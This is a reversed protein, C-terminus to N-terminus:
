SKTAAFNDYIKLVMDINTLAEDIFKKTASDKTNAKLRTLMTKLTTLEYTMKNTYTRDLAGRQYDSELGTSLEAMYATESRKLKKKQDDGSKIKKEALIANFDTNMTGLTSNLTSNTNNLMNDSLRNNQAKTVEQLTAIRAQLPLALSAFSPPQLSSIVMFALAVLTLAGGILGFIAVRNAAKQQPPAIQDLYDAAYVEDKPADYQLSGLPQPQPQLHPQPQPQQLNPQPQTSAAQPVPQQTGFDGTGPQALQPAPLQGSGPAPQAPQAPNTPEQSNMHECKLM